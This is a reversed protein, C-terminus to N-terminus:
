YGRVHAGPPAAAPPAGEPPLPTTRDDFLQGGGNEHSRHSGKAAARAHPAETEARTLWGDWRQQMPRVLGGGVGVIIVGAVTALIAVLVPTTVATAVGIQNLAAIVGLGVIFVYVIRALLAGFSLGGLAAGVLDRVANAIAAALVVIIIAVVARPIWTVIGTLLESVPNPGFVGFGFQLTILLLAYYVLTAILSGANYKSNALVQGLGARDTMRNFGVRELLKGIVSRLVRAIIWGIVLIVLFLLLKPVFTAVTSLGDRLSGGVDIQALVKM